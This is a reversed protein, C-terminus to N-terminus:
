LEANNKDDQQQEKKNCTTALKIQMKKTERWNTRSEVRGFNIKETKIWLPHVESNKQFIDGRKIDLMKIKKELLGFKAEMYFLLSLWAIYV